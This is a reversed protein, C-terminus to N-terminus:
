QILFEGSKEWTTEDYATVKSDSIMYLTDNIYVARKVGTDSVAKALSLENGAYSIVYGGSGGPIFFVNHQSDLLFAHHNNQIDTWSETLYYKDAEVPSAPNSVDFLSVKVQSNEM